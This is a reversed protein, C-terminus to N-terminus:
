LGLPTQAGGGHEDLIVPLEDAHEADVKIGALVAADRLLQKGEAPRVGLGGRGADPHLVKDTGQRVGHLIGNGLHGAAGPQRGVPQGHFLLDADHLRQVVCADKIHLTGDALDGGLQAGRLGGDVAVQALQLSGCLFQKGVFLGDGNEFASATKQTDNVNWGGSVASQASGSSTTNLSFTYACHLSLEDQRYAQSSESCFNNICIKQLISFDPQIHLFLM